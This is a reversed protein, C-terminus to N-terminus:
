TSRIHKMIEDAMDLKESIARLVVEDMSEVMVLDYYTVSKHIESGIRHCRDEANARQGASYGTCYFVAHNARQLNLGAHGAAESLVLVDVEGSNFRQLAVERDKRKMGGYYATSVIGEAWLTTFLLPMLRTFSTWILVPGDMLMSSVSEGIWQLKVQHILDYGEETYFIGQCIQHLKQAKVMAWMTDYTGGSLMEVRFEKKLEKYMVRAGSPLEFPVRIYRKPPLENEVVSKPICICSLSIKKGITAAAGDKLEWKYPDWPPGPSFFQDRFKWFSRGFTQGDDSFQLQSWIEEPRELVPRGTLLVRYPIKSCFAYLARYRQTRAEKLMTSEDAAVTRFKFEPKNNYRYYYYPKGKHKGLIRVVGFAALVPASRIADYNIVYVDAPKQLAAIRKRASGRVLSYKLDTHKEIEGGWQYVLDDNKTLVLVPYPDVLTELWKLSMYTKGSGFFCFLGTRPRRAVFDNALEQYPYIPQTKM